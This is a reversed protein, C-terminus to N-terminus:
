GAGEMRAAARRKVPSPPIRGLGVRVALGGRWGWRPTSWAVARGTALETATITPRLLGLVLDSQAVVSWRASVGLAVETRLAAALWPVVSRRPAATRRTQAVLSGAMGLACVGLTWRGRAWPSCVGLTPGLRLITLAGTRDFDDVRRAGLELAGVLAVRRWGVRVGFTGEATAFPVLGQGGGLGISLAVVPRVPRVSWATDRLTVIPIPRAPAADARVADAPPASAIAQEVADLAMAIAVAAMLEVDHCAEPVADFTRVVQEGVVAIVRITLTADTHEVEATVGDPWAERAGWAQARAELAAADLCGGDGTVSIPATSMSAIATVLLTSLAM